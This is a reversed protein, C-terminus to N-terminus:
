RREMGEEFREFEEAGGVMGRFAVIKMFLTWALSWQLRGQLTV